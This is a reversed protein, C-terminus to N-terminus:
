PAWCGDVPGGGRCASSWYADGVVDFPAGRYSWHTLDPSSYIHMGCPPRSSSTYFWGCTYSEGYLYYNSGLKQIDGFHADIVNGQVDLPLVQVPSPLYPSTAFSTFTVAVDARSTSAVLLTAFASAPLVNLYRRSYRACLRM